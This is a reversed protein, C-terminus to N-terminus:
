GSRNGQEILNEVKKSLNEKKERQQSLSTSGPGFDPRNDGV